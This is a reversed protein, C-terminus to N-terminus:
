AAMAKQLAALLNGSGVVMDDGITQWEEPQEETRFDNRAKLQGPRAIAFLKPTVREPIHATIEDPLRVFPELRHAHYDLADVFKLFDADREAITAAAHLGHIITSHDRKMANGIQPYSHGSRRAVVFCAQRVRMIPRKRSPGLIEEPTTRAMRAAVAIIDAVRAKRVRSM